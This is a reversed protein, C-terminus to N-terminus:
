SIGCANPAAILRIKIGSLITLFITFSIPYLLASYPKSELVQAIALKICPWDDSIAIPTSSDNSFLFSTTPSFLNIPAPSWPM